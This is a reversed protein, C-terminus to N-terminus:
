SRIGPHQAAGYQLRHLLLGARQVGRAPVQQKRSGSVALTDAIRLEQQATAALVLPEISAIGVELVAQGSEVRAFALVQALLARVHSRLAEAEPHQLACVDAAFVPLVKIGKIGASVMHASSTGV